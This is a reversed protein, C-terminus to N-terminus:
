FLGVSWSAAVAWGIAAALLSKSHLVADVPSGGRREVITVKQKAKVKAGKQADIFPAALLEGARIMLGNEAAMAPVSLSLLAAGLLVRHMRRM